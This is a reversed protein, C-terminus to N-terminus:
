YWTPCILNYIYNEVVGPCNWYMHLFSGTDGNPYLECNPSPILKMLHLKRPTLYMRHLFKFRILKHNLNKSTDDLNDWVTSLCIDDVSCGLARSWIQHVALPKCVSNLLLYIRSVLGRNRGGVDLLSHLSHTLPVDWPVGCPRMALRLWLYFFFSIRPVNYVSCLDNFSGMGKDDWVQCRKCVM